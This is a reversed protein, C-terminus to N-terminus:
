IYIEKELQWITKISVNNQKLLKRIYRASVNAKAAIETTSMGGKYLSIIQETALTRKRRKWSQYTM